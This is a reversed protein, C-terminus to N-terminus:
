YLKEDFDIYINKKIFSANSPEENRNIKYTITQKIKSNKISIISKSDLAMLINDHEFYFYLYNITKLYDFKLDISSKIIWIYEEPEETEEVTDVQYPQIDSTINKVQININENSIIDIHSNTDEEVTAERANSIGEIENNNIMKIIARETLISKKTYKEISDYWRFFNNNLLPNIQLIMEALLKDDYDNEKYTEKGNKNKKFKTSFGIIKRIENTNKNNNQFQIVVRQIMQIIKLKSPENEAFNNEDKNIDYRISFRIFDIKNDGINKKEDFIWNYVCYRFLSKFCLNTRKEIVHGLGDVMPITHNTWGNTVNTKIVSRYNKFYDINDYENLIFNEFNKM